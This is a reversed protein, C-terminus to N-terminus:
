ALLLFGQAPSQPAMFILWNFLNFLRLGLFFTELFVVRVGLDSYFLIFGPGKLM